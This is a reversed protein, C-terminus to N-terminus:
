TALQSKIRILEHEAISRHFRSQETLLYTELEAVAEAVLGKDLKGLAQGLSQTLRRNAEAEPGAIELQSPTLESRVAYIARLVDYIASLAEGIHRVNEKSPELPIDRIVEAVSDLMAAISLLKEHLRAVPDV